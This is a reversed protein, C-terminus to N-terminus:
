EVVNNFVVYWQVIMDKSVEKIHSVEIFHGGFTDAWIIIIYLEIQAPVKPPCNLQPHCLLVRPIWNKGISPYSVLESSADNIKALTLKQLGVAMKRLFQHCAPYGSATLHTLWKALAPEELNRRHSYSSIKEHGHQSMDKREM